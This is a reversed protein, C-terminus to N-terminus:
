GEYRYRDSPDIRLTKPGVPGYSKEPFFFCLREYRHNKRWFFFVPPGRVPIRIEGGRQFTRKKQSAAPRPFQGFFSFELFHKPSPAFPRKSEPLLPRRFTKQVVWFQKQVPALHPKPHHLLSKPSRQERLGFSRKCGGRLVKPFKGKDTLKGPGCSGLAKKEQSTSAM